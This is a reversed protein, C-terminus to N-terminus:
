NIFNLGRQQVYNTLEPNLVVPVDRLEEINRVGLLATIGRLQEIFDAVHTHLGDAGDKTYWHLFLGAIGVADAGLRLAKLVDLPTRVGGTAIIPLNTNGFAEMLSEVTTQGFNTLESYDGEPRRVNEIKVFNTGGRGGVDIAAVGLNTLVAFDDARMGFGVEKAIVPVQSAAVIAAINAHWNFDREGEPMVLEQPANLHVELANAHLTEVAHQAIAPSKDAGVNAFVLGEPNATRLASFTTAQDPEHALISESGSAIALGFDAAVKGLAANVKGTAPSGGTMANIFFPLQMPLGAVKTSLDVQDTRVGPLASRIFRVQDFGAGAHEQFFKEALFFHEDKRHSQVSQGKM